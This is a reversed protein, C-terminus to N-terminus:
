KESITVSEIADGTFTPNQTPDRRTLGNVVDM